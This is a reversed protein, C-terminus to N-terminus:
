RLVRPLPPRILHKQSNKARNGGRQTNHEACQRRVKVNQFVARVRPRRREPLGCALSAKELAAHCYEMLSAAEAYLKVSESLTTEESQMQSLITELRAMGDEFSKPARM